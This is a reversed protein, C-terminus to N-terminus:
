RGRRQLSANSHRIEQKWKWAYKLVEVVRIKEVNGCLSASHNNEQTNSKKAKSTLWMLTRFIRTRLVLIRLIALVFPHCFSYVVQWTAAACELRNLFSALFAVRAKYAARLWNHNSLIRLCFLNNYLRLRLGIKLNIYQYVINICRSTDYM